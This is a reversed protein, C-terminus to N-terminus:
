FFHGFIYIPGSSNSSFMGTFYSQTKSDLFFGLRKEIEAGREVINRYTIRNRLEVIWFAFTVIGALLFVLRAHAQASILVAVQGAAFLGLVTFRFKIVEAFYRSLESYETRLNKTADQSPVTADM